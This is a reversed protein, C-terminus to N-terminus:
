PHEGEFIVHLDLEIKAIAQEKRGYAVKWLLTLLANEVEIHLGIVDKLELEIVEHVM